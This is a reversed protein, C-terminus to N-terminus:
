SSGTIQVYCAPLYWWQIVQNAFTTKVEDKHFLMKNKEQHDPDTEELVM